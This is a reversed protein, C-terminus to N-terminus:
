RCSVVVEAIKAARARYTFGLSQERAACGMKDRLARDDRLKMLADALAAEDGAPFFIAADESVIERLAPMDKVVLPKGVAMYEFLKLPSATLGTVTDPIALVDAANVFLAAEKQNVQGPMLLKEAPIGLGDAQERLESIEGPRGGVLLLLSDDDTRGMKAFADVLLDLRRYAFTLGAYGVIFADSPLGLQRRTQEKDLPYYLAPEFADPIV